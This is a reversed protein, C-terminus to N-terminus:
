HGCARTFPHHKKYELHSILTDCDDAITDLDTAAKSRATEYAESLSDFLNSAAPIKHKLNSVESSVNRVQLLSDDISKILMNYSDNFHQNLAEIRNPHISQACFACTDRGKHLEIGTSVWDNLRSDAKLEEIVSSTVTTGLLSWAKTAILGLNTGEASVLGIPSKFTQNFQQFLRNRTTDDCIHQNVTGLREIQDSRNAYRNKNYNNYISNGQTRLIEKITKAKDRRHGDLEADCRLKREEVKERSRYLKELEVKLNEIIKQTEVSEEGFVFIPNLGKREVPVVASDIFDRNFVRIHESTNPFSTGSVEQGNIQFSTSGKDPKVRHELNRFLRSITTKGAGNWGYILNYQRFEPTDDRWTFDRFIGVNQIRNIKNIM